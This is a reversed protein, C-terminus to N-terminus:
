HSEIVRRGPRRRFMMLGGLAMLAATAPEPVALLQFNDANAKHDRGWTYSVAISAYATAADTFGTTTFAYTSTSGELHIDYIEGTTTDITYSLNHYDTPVWTGTYAISDVITGNVILSLAGSATGNYERNQIQLGTFYTTVSESAAQSPLQSYFGIAIRTVAGDDPALDASITMETPKTYLGASSIPIAISGTSNGAASFYARPAPDGADTKVNANFNGTSNFQLLSWAGGPLNATDPTRGNIAANNNGTFADSVIVEASAVSVFSMVLATCTLLAYPSFQGSRKSTWM